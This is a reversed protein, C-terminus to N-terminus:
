AAKKHRAMGVLGLLGSGFLWAAAPIPVPPAITAVVWYRQSAPTISENFGFWQPTCGPLGVICAYIGKYVSVQDTTPINFPPVGPGGPIFANLVSYSNESSTSAPESIWEAVTAQLAADIAAGFVDANTGLATASTYDGLVFDINWIGGNASLGTIGTACNVSSFGCDELVVVPAANVVSSQAAMVFGAIVTASLTLKLSNLM